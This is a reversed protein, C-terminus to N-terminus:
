ALWSKRKKYHKGERCPKEGVAGRTIATGVTYFARPRIDITLEVQGRTSNEGPNARYNGQPLELPLYIPLSISLSFSAEWVEGCGMPNPGPLDAVFFGGMTTM